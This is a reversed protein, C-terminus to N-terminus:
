FLKYDISYFLLFAYKMKVKLRKKILFKYLNYMYIITEKKHKSVKYYYQYM